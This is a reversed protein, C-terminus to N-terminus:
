RKKTEAPKEAVKKAAKKEGNDATEAEVKLGYKEADAESVEGGEGVLLSTAKPDDAKVIEGKANLYLREDSILKGAENKTIPM